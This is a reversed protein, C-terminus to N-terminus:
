IELKGFLNTFDDDEGGMLQFININDDLNGNIECAYILLYLLTNNNMVLRFPTSSTNEINIKTEEKIEGVNKDLKKELEEKNFNEEVENNYKEDYDELFEEDSDGMSWEAPTSNIEENELTSSEGSSGEKVIVEGIKNLKLYDAIPKTVLINLWFTNPHLDTFISVISENIKDCYEKDQSKRLVEVMREFSYYNIIARYNKNKANVDLLKGIESTVFGYNYIDMNPSISPIVEGIKLSHFIEALNEQIGINVWGYVCNLCKKWEGLTCPQPILDKPLGSKPDCLQRTIERIFLLNENSNLTEANM